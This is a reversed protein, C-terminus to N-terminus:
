PWINAYQAALEDHNHAVQNLVAAIEHLKEPSLSTAQQTREMLATLAARSDPQPELPIVREIATNLDARATNEDTAQEELAAAIGAIRVAAARYENSPNM